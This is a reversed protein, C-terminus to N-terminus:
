APDKRTMVYSLATLTLPGADPSPPGFAAGLCSARPLTALPARDQCIASCDDGDTAIRGGRTKRTALPARWSSAGHVRERTQPNRWSEPVVPRIVLAARPNACSSSTPFPCILFMGVKFM